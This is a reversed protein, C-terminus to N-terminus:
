RLYIYFDRFSNDPVRLPWWVFLNAIEYVFIPVRANYVPVHSLDFLFREILFNVTFRGSFNCRSYSGVNFGCHLQDLFVRSIHITRVAWPYPLDM